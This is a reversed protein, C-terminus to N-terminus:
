AAAAAAADRYLTRDGVGGFGAIDALAIAAQSRREAKVAADVLVQYFIDRQAHSGGIQYLDRRIPWILDVVRGYEGKRHAAMAAVLPVGLAHNAAGVTGRGGAAAGELGQRLTEVADFCGAASLIMADHASSF